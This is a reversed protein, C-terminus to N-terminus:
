CPTTEGKNQDAQRRLLHYFVQGAKDKRVIQLGACLPEDELLARECEVYMLGGPALLEAAAPMVRELWGERFPPDLFVLDFRLALDRCRLLARQADLPWVEVAQADLRTRLENLAAVAAGANEVLVVRKAGRSACEFGLAGTGAFLDLALAGALADERLHAIWNFLTERVRDPTPRLGPLDVVSLPTRKWQGAIIRVRAAPASRARSPKPISARPSSM